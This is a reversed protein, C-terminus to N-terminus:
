RENFKINVGEVEWRARIDVMNDYITFKAARKYPNIKGPFYINENQNNLIEYSRLIYKGPLLNEFFFKKNITKAYFSSDLEINKAEVIVEKNFNSVFGKLKGFIINNDKENISSKRDIKLIKTSDPFLNNSLDSFVGRPIYIEDSNIVNTIKINFQSDFVLEINIKNSDVDYYHISNNKLESNILVPEDFNLYFKQDDYDTSLLKPSTTDIITQKLISFKNTQYEEIRNKLHSIISISDEDTQTIKIHNPFTNLDEELFYFKEIKGSTYQIQGHNNSLLKGNKIQNHQVAKDIYIEISIFDSESFEIYDLNCVGYNNFSTNKQINEINGDTAIITYKKDNLYKFEFEGNLNSQTKYQLYLSDDDIIEYLGINYIKDSAFNYMSGFINNQNLKSNFSYILEIPSEMNNGNIDRINRSISIRLNDNEDWLDLPIISIMNKKSIIEYISNTNVEVSAQVSNPDIYESFLIQIKQKSDLNQTANEPFVSILIPGITDKPGGEAPGIAACSLFFIM